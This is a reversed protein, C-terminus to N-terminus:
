YPLGFYEFFYKIYEGFYESLLPGMTIIVVIIAVTFLISLVDLVIGAIALSRGKGDLEASKKLGIICLILSLINFFFALVFGATAAPNKQEEPVYEQTPVGCYPCVVALDAIERGCYKCFM